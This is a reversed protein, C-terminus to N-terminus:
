APSGGAGEGEALPDLECAEVDLLEMVPNLPMLVWVLYPKRV